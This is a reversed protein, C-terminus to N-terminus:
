HKTHEPAVIDRLTATTKFTESGRKLTLALKTGAPAKDRDAKPKPGPIIVDGNRVGAEYAPSGEVVQAVSTDSQSDAPLFVAGLRNHQYAPPRTTKPRLYAMGNIGDVILDLRKLAAIGLSAGFPPSGLAMQTSSAETVPVGTLILPGLVLEDAWAEEKVVVGSAAMYFAHLTLPQKPHMAKWERWKDPSLAVGVTDGTDVQVIENTKDGRYLELRLVDSNTPLPIKTWTAVKEPLRPLFAMKLRAADIQIINSSISGWGIAGDADFHVEGLKYNPLVIIGFRTRVNTQWLRLAFEETYGTPVQGPALSANTPPATFKLGLLQASAPFLISCSAGTDFTLQAPKGNIEAPILIKDAAHSVELWLFSVVIAWAVVMPKFQMFGDQIRRHM